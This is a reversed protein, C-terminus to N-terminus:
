AEPLIRRLQAAADFLTRLKAHEERTTEVTFWRWGCKGCQRQREVATGQSVTRVIIANEDSKCHPCTM